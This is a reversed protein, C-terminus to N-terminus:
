DHPRPNRRLHVVDVATAANEHASAPALARRVTLLDPVDRDDSARWGNDAVLTAVTRADRWPVTQESLPQWASLSRGSQYACFFVWLHLCGHDICQRYIAPRAAPRLDRWIEHHRAGGLLVRAVDLGEVTAFLPRHDTIFQVHRSLVHLRVPTLEEGIVVRGHGEAMHPLASNWDEVSSLKGRLHQLAEVDGANISQIREAILHRTWVLYVRHFVRDYMTNIRESCGPAARVRIESM